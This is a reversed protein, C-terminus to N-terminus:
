KAQSRLGQVESVMPIERAMSTATIALASTTRAWGTATGTGNTWIASPRQNDTCRPTSRSGPRKKRSNRGGSYKEVAPADWLFSQVRIPTDDGHIKDAALVYRGIAEALPSLLRAAQAVWDALTSRQPEVGDRSYIQCLLYLPMHDCYKSVLLHALLGTGVPLSVASEM